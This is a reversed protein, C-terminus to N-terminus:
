SEYTFETDLIRVIDGDKIGAKKLAKTVGGNDLRRQFYMFSDRDDLVVIRALREIFEGSIVFAGDSARTIAYSNPDAESFSFPEFEIARPPPLNKLKKTVIRVLNVLGAHTVGSIEVIDGDVSARFRDISEKSASDIKNLAIIQPVDRLDKNYKFLENNVTLYDEIPDRGDSSSIDVVHVILRTRDIHRLFRFGLGAGDSAGEILGPIDAITFSVDDVACVGLNPYLTTFPYNAIKPNARTLVSLLTSKGANPFGVLGVDAITKLELIIAREKTPEGRQSFGPAQRRSSKFRANGKGGLGGYLVVVRDDPNYMDAIINNSEADRVVTGRPVRLVLDAGNKGHRNKGSGNAGKEAHYHKGFRYESLSSLSEQTEIVVNGGNGGDGGDPGGNPVYKETYFSTCGDGGDGAKIYIKARDIFM